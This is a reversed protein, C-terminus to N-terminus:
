AGLTIWGYLMILAFFLGISVCIGRFGLDIARIKKLLKSKKIYFRFILYGAAISIFFLVAKQLYGVTDVKVSTNFLFKICQEGFIGGALCLVGLILVAAQQCIDIKVVGQEGEHRGFLMSSYKIFSIATGLNILIMAGSV